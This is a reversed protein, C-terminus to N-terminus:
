FLWPFWTLRVLEYPGSLNWPDEEVIRVDIVNDGLKLTEEVKDDM